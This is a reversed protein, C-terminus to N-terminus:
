RPPFIPSASHESISLLFPPTGIIISLLAVPESESAAQTEEAPDDWVGSVTEQIIKELEMDSIDTLGAGSIASEDPGLETDPTMDKLWEDLWATDEPRLNNKENEM